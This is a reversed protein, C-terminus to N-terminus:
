KKISKVAKCCLPKIDEMPPQEGFFLDNINYFLKPDRFKILPYALAMDLWFNYCECFLTDEESGVVIPNDKDNKAILEKVKQLKGLFEPMIKDLELNAQNLLKNLKNM